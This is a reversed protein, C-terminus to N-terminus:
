LDANHGLCRKTSALSPEGYCYLPFGVVVSTAPADNQREEALNSEGLFFAPLSSREKQQESYYLNRLVTMTYFSHISEGQDRYPHLYRM